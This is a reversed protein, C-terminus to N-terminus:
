PRAYRLRLSDHNDGWSLDLTWCGARPLDVISPGPGGAVTRTVETDGLRAHILLPGGYQPSVWLIKNNQDKLPPANLPHDRSWLIAIIKGDDGLVYPMMPKPDSFGARAWTPLVAYEVTCSGGGTAPAPSHPDSRTLVYGVAVAAAVAAGTLAAVYVRRSRSRPPTGIAAVVATRDLHHGRVEEAMGSRLRAIMQEDTTMTM